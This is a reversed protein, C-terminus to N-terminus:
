KENTESRFLWSKFSKRYDLKWPISRKFFVIWNRTSKKFVLIESCMYDEAFKRCNQSNSWKRLGIQNVRINGLPKLNIINKEKWQLAEKRAIKQRQISAHRHIKLQNVFNQYRFNNWTRLSLTTTGPVTWTIMTKIRYKVLRLAIKQSEKCIRIKRLFFFCASLLFDWICRKKNTKENNQIPLSAVTATCQQMYEKFSFRDLHLFTANKAGPDSFGLHWSAKALYAVGQRSPWAVPGWTPEFSLRRVTRAASESAPLASPACLSVDLTKSTLSPHTAQCRPWISECYFGPAQFMLCATLLCVHHPLVLLCSFEVNRALKTILVCPTASALYASPM